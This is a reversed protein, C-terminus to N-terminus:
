RFSITVGGSTISPLDCPVTCRELAWDLTQQQLARWESGWNESHALMLPEDERVFALFADRIAHDRDNMPVYRAQTKAQHCPHCLGQLNSPDPSDGDIHDVESATRTNCAVCLGGNRALVTHRTEPSLRREREPYGGAVLHAMRTQLAEAVLRDFHARGDERTARFYRVDKAWRRCYAGCFLTTTPAPELAAECNACLGVAWRLHPGDFLHM